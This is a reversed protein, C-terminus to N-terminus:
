WGCRGISILLLMKLYKLKVQTVDTLFTVLFTATSSTSRLLCAKNSLKGSSM